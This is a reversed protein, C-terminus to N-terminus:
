CIARSAPLRTDEQERARLMRVHLAQKEQNMKRIQRKTGEIKELLEKRRKKKPRQGLERELEDLEFEQNAIAEECAFHQEKMESYTKM